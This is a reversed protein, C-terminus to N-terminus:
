KHLYILEAGLNNEVYPIQEGSTIIQVETKIKRFIYGIEDKSPIYKLLAKTYPSNNGTGDLAAQGPAASFGILQNGDVKVKALGRSAVSRTKTKYMRDAFPNNRCADLLTISILKTPKTQKLVWNLSVAKPELANESLIEANIPLLYNLGQAEISHGAYFLLSIDAKTTKQGFKLIEDTMQMRTADLLTTVSFGLGLLKAKLLSVDNSPNRLDKAYEYKSNGILLAVKTQEALVENNIVDTSTSVKEVKLNSSPTTPTSVSELRPPLYGMLYKEPDVFTTGVHNAIGKRVEFHLFSPQLNSLHAIIQGKQVLEGKQVVVDTLNAYISFTGDVNFSYSDLHQLTLIERNKNDKNIAVVRGISASKVPTGGVASLHIGNNSGKKYRQIIEGKLPWFPSDDRLALAADAEIKAYGIEIQRTVETRGSDPSKAGFVVIILRDNGRKVTTFLNYGSSKNYGSKVGDLGKITNLLPTNIHKLRGFHTSYARRSLFHFYDPFDSILRRGLNAMDEASSFGLQSMGHADAFTTSHMGLAIATLNMKKVFNRETGAIAEALVLAADNADMLATAVILDRLTAIQGEKLGVIPVKNNFIKQTNIVNQSVTVKTDLNVENKRLADYAVYLTMLKTLGAPNLATQASRSRYIKGSGANVIISAYKGNTKANSASCFTALIM